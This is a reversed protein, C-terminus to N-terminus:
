GLPILQGRKYKADLSHVIVFAKERADFVGIVSFLNKAQMGASVIAWMPMGSILGIKGGLGDPLILDALEDFTAPNNANVPEGNKIIEIFTTDDNRTIKFDM